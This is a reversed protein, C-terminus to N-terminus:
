DNKEGLRKVANEKALLYKNGLDIKLQEVASEMRKLAMEQEVTQRLPLYDIIEMM